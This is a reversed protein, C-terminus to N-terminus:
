PQLRASPNQRRSVKDFKPMKEMILFEICDDRSPRMGQGVHPCVKEFTKAEKWHHSMLPDRIVRKLWPWRGRLRQRLMEKWSKPFDFRVSTTTEGFAALKLATYIIEKGLNGDRRVEYSMGGVLDIPLQTAYEIDVMKGTLVKVKMPDYEQSM